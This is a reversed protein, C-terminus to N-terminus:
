DIAASLDRILKAKRGGAITVTSAHAIGFETNVLTITHRGAPVRVERQPTTLGTDKGDILIRCPPKSGIMLVGHTPAPAAAAAAATAPAAAAAPMEITAAPAAAAAPLAAPAAAATDDLPEVSLPTVVPLPSASAVHAPTAAPPSSPSSGSRTAGFLFAAALVVSAAGTVAAVPRWDRAGIRAIPATADATAASVPVDLEVRVVPGWWRPSAILRVPLDPLSAEFVPPRLKSVAPVSSLSSTTVVTGRALRRRPAWSPATTPTPDEFVEAATPRVFPTTPRLVRDTDDM